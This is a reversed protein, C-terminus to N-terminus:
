SYVFHIDHPDVIPTWVEQAQRDARKSHNTSLAGPQALWKLAIAGTKSTIRKPTAAMAAGTAQHSVPVETSRSSHGPANPFLQRCTWESPGACSGPSPAGDRLAPVENSFEARCPSFLGQPADAPRAGGAGFVSRFAADPLLGTTAIPGSSAPSSSWPPVSPLVLVATAPRM